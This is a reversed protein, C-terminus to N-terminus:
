SDQLKTESLLKRDIQGSRTRPLSDVFRIQKPVKYESLNQRYFDRIEDPTASKGDKLVLFATPIQGKYDDLVGVCAAEADV